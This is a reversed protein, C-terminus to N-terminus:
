LYMWFNPHQVSPTQQHAQTAPRPRQILRRIFAM